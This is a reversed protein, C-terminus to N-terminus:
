TAAAGDSRAAATRITGPDGGQRYKVFRSGPTINHIYNVKTAITRM